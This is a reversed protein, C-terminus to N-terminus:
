QVDKNERAMKALAERCTECTAESDQNHMDWGAEAGCLTPHDKGVPYGGYNLEQFGIEHYHTRIGNRTECIAVNVFEEVEAAECEYRSRNQARAKLILLTMGYAIVCGIFAAFCGVFLPTPSNRVVAAAAGGGFAILYGVPKILTSAVSRNQDRAKRALAVLLSGFAVFACIVSLSQLLQDTM